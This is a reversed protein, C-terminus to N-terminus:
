RKEKPQSHDTTVHIFEVVDKPSLGIARAEDIMPGLCTDAFRQRRDARVVERAGDAVFM